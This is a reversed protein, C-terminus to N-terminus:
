IMKLKQMIRLLKKKLTEFIVADFGNSKMLNMNLNKLIYPESQGKIYSVLEYVTRGIQCGIGYPIGMSRVIEDMDPNCISMANDINKMRTKISSKVKKVCDENSELHLLEAKLNVEELEKQAQRKLMEIGTTM